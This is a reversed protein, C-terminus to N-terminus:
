IKKYKDLMKKIKKKEKDYKASRFSNKKGCKTCIGYKKTENGYTVIKYVQYSHMPCDMIM